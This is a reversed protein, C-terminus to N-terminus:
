QNSSGSSEIRGRVNAPCWMNTYVDNITLTSEDVPLVSRDFAKDFEAQLSNVYQGGETLAVEKTFKESWPFDSPIKNGSVPDNMWRHLYDWWPIEKGVPPLGARDEVLLMSSAAAYLCESLFGDRVKLCM